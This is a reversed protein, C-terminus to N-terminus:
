AREHVAQVVHDRLADTRAAREFGSGLRSLEDLGLRYATVLVDFAAGAKVEDVDRRRAIDHSVFELVEGEAGQAVYVSGRDADLVLSGALRRRAETLPYGSWLSFHRRDRGRSSKGGLADSFPELIDAIVDDIKAQASPDRVRRIAMDSGISRNVLLLLILGAAPPLMPAGIGTRKEVVDVLRHRSWHRYLALLREEYPAAQGAAFVVQGAETRRAEDTCALWARGEPSVLYREDGCPILVTAPLRAAGADLPPLEELRARLTMGRLRPHFWDALSPLDLAFSGPPSGAQLVWAGALLRSAHALDDEHMVLPMGFLDTRLTGTM